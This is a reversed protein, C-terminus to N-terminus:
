FAFPRSPDNRDLESSTPDCSALIARGDSPSSVLLLLLTAHTSMTDTLRDVDVDIAETLRHTTYLLGMSFSFQGTQTIAYDLWGIVRVTCCYRQDVEFEEV